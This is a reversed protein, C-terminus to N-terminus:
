PGQGPLPRPRPAHVHHRRGRGPALLRRRGDGGARHVPPRLRAGGRGPLPRGGAGRLRTDAAHPAADRAPRGAFLALSGHFRRDDFTYQVPRYLTLSVIISCISIGSDNGPGPATEPLRTTMVPALRPSPARSAWAKECAPAETASTARVSRSRFATAAARGPADRTTLPSTVSSSKLSDTASAVTASHPPTSAQIQLAPMEGTTAPGRSVSAAVHRWTMSTLRVPENRPARAAARTMPSPPRSM